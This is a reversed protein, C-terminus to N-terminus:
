ADAHYPTSSPGSLTQLFDRAARPDATDHGEGLRGLVQALLDGAEAPRGQRAMVRALALAARLEFSVAGRERAIACARQLRAAASDRASPEHQECLLAEVREIESAFLAAREAPAIADLAARALADREGAVHLDALVV